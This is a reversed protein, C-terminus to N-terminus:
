EKLSPLARFQGLLWVKMLIFNILGISALHLADAPDIRVNRFAHSIDIKMLRADSGLTTLTPTLDDLRPLRLTFPSEVKLLKTLPIYM